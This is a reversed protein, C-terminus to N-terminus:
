FTSCASLIKIEKGYTWVYASDSIGLIQYAKIDKSKNYARMGTWPAALSIM